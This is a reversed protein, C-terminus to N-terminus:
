RPGSRRRAHWFALVEIRQARPRVRYFVVYEVRQVLFRRVEPLQPWPSATGLNPSDALRLLARDLEEDLLGPAAPRNTKWWASASVIQRHASPTIIITFAV